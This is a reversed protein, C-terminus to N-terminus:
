EIQGNKEWKEMMAKLATAGPTGSIEAAVLAFTSISSSMWKGSDADKTFSETAYRRIGGQLYTIFLIKSGQWEADKRVELTQLQEAFNTDQQQRERQLEFVARIDGESLITLQSVLSAKPTSFDYKALGSGLPDHLTIWAVASISVLLSLASLIVPIPIVTDSRRADSARTIQEGLGARPPSGPECEKRGSAQEASEDLIAQM